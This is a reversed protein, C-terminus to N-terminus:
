DTPFLSVSLTATYEGTRANVPFELLLDATAKAQGLRGTNDASALSAPAALGPGGSLISAVPAGPNVGTKPEILKPTWALHGAGLETSGNRFASSHGTVAWGGGAAQAANRSDTITVDPLTGRYHIRDGTKQEDSLEVAGGFDAVTLTLAGPTDTVNAKLPIGAGDDPAHFAVNRIYFDLLPRWAHWTHGGPVHADNVEVGANELFTIWSLVSDVVTPRPTVGVRINALRDQLGTGIMIGGTVNKMREVQEANPNPPAASWVAHYGFLDTHDYLVVAARGGGASFGGLARNKAETSVNYNAEIFPIVNNRLEDAYGPEGGPLGNFDTAVVVMDEAAGDNIANQVIYHAAGQMM